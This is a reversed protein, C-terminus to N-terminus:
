GSKKAMIPVEKRAQRVVTMQKAFDFVFAILLFATASSGRPEAVRLAGSKFFHVFSDAQHQAFM